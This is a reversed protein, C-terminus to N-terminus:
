RPLETGRKKADNILACVIEADEICEFPVHSRFFSDFSITGRGAEHKKLRVVSIDNLALQWILEPDDTPYNSLVRQDTVAFWWEPVNLKNRIGLSGLLFIGGLVLSFVTFTTVGDAALLAFGCICM